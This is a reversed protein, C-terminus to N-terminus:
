KVRFRRTSGPGTVIWPRAQLPDAGTVLTSTPMSPSQAGASSATIRSLAALDCRAQWEAESMDLKDSQMVTDM